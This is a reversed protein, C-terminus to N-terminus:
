KIHVRIRDTAGLIKRGAPPETGVVESGLRDRSALDPDFEMQKLVVLADRASLGAVRPVFFKPKAGIPLDRAPRPSVTGSPLGRLGEISRGGVPRELKVEIPRVISVLPCLVLDDNPERTTAHISITKASEEVTVREDNPEGCTGEEVTVELSRAGPGVGTVTWATPVAHTGEEDEGCAGAAVCGLLGLVVM